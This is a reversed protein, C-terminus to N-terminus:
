NKWRKENGGRMIVKKANREKKEKMVKGDDTNKESIKGDRYNM